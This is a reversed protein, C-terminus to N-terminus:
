QGRRSLDEAVKQMLVLGVRERLSLACSDLPVQPADFGTKNKNETM